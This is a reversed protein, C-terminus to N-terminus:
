SRGEKKADPALPFAEPQDLSPLAEVYLSQSPFAFSTGAGEVIAKIALALREKIELWEGWQTTRTFCYLMLDISSESFRDIRVFLPAEPPQAFADSGTVYAEIADRVQRLQDVTTGYVLGISWYIRRHTMASFNTVANDSLKANPVYVPAKDFRRVTTSRFGITEVTGEVVGEVNIWDGVRFRQEGIVFMGAILNKFLDQAGLAVAVGFLGLGALLPGVKIGWIELIVALGIAAFGIKTVRALWTVLEETFWAGAHLLVRAAPQSLSYLAWFLIIAVLSRNLNYAFVAAAGEPQLYQSALFIALAVPVFALPRALADVLADDFRTASRRALSRLRAIAFRSFWRRFAVGILIILLAVVIQGVSVGALGQRWVDQALTWYDSLREM